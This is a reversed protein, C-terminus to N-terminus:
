DIERHVARQARAVHEGGSVPVDGIGTYPDAVVLIRIERRYRRRRAPRRLHAGPQVIHLDRRRSGGVRNVWLRLLPNEKLEDALALMTPPIDLGLAKATALPSWSTASFFM